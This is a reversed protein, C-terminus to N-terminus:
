GGLVPSAVLVVEQRRQPLRDVGRQDYRNCVSYISSLEEVVVGKKRRVLDQMM